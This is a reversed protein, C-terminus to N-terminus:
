HDVAALHAGSLERSELLLPVTADRGDPLTSTSPTLVGICRSSNEM